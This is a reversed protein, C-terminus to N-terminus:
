PENEKEEEEGMFEKTMTAMMKFANIMRTFAEILVDLDDGTHIDIKTSFDGLSIKNAIETFKSVVLAKARLSSQMHRIADALQGVEDGEYVHIEQSFDGKEIKQAVATLKVIPDAIRNSTFWLLGLGILVLIIGLLVMRSALATAEASVNEMPVVLEVLWP